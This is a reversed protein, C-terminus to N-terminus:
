KKFGIRQRKSWKQKEELENQKKDLMNELADYISSLQIDHDGIRDRLEMLQNLIEHNNIVISRLTIFAKAIAINMQIAKKSKLVSALMTVGHESFVYPTINTNRKKQSTAVNQSRIAYEDSATAFHSRMSTWEEVTLRFMFKEPFRDKNRKVQENLRKTETEYLEALDYDLMVRHGRIEYIRNQINPILHTGM